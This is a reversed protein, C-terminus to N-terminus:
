YNKMEQYLTATGCYKDEPLPSKKSVEATYYDIVKKYNYIFLDVSGNYEYTEVVYGITKSSPSYEMAYTKATNAIGAFFGAAFASSALGVAGTLTEIGKAILAGLAGITATIIFSEM